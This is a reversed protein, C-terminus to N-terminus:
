SRGRPRVDAVLRSGSSRRTMHPSFRLFTRGISRMTLVEFQKFTKNHCLGEVIHPLWGQVRVRRRSTPWSEHTELNTLSTVTGDSCPPSAFIKTASSAPVESQGGLLVTWM